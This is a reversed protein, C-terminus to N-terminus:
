KSVKASPCSGEPLTVWCKSPDTLTADYAACMAAIADSKKDFPGLYDAGIPSATTLQLHCALSSTERRICWTSQGTCQVTAAHAASRPAPTTPSQAGSAVTLLLLGAPYIRLKVDM